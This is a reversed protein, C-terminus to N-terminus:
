DLPDDRMCNRALTFFRPFHQLLPLALKCAIAPFQYDLAVECNELGEGRGHYIAM